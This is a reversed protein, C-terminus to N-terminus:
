GAGNQQVEDPHDVFSVWEHTYVRHHMVSDNVLRDVCLFSSYKSRWGILITQTAKNNEQKTPRDDSCRTLLNPNDWLRHGGILQCVNPMTRKGVPWCTRIIMLDYSPLDSIAQVFAACKNRLCWWVRPISTFLLKFVVLSVIESDTTSVSRRNSVFFHIYSYLM